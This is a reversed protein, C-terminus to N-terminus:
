MFCFVVHTLCARNIKCSCFLIIQINSHEVNTSTMKEVNMYRIDSSVGLYYSTIILVRLNQESFVDAVQYIIDYFSFVKLLNCKSKIVSILM